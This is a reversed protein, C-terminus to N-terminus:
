RYDRRPTILRFVTAPAGPATGEKKVTEMAFMQPFRLVLQKLVDLKTGRYGHHSQLRSLQIEGGAAKLVGAFSDADKQWREARSGAILRIYEMGCWRVIEIGRAAHEQTLEDSAEVLAILGAIRIANENWRTLDGAVDAFAGRGLDVVENGFVRFAKKADKTATIPFVRGGETAKRRHSLFTDVQAAWKQRLAEPFEPADEPTYEPKAHTEFCLCRALFGREQAERNSTLERLIEGQVLWSLSLCPRELQISDRTIRDQAHADGSWGKLWLDIDAGSDRYLGCAVRIEGGADASSSMLTENNNQLARALAETTADGMWLRPQHMLEAELRKIETEHETREAIEEATPAGKKTGKSAKTVREKYIGLEAKRTADGERWEDTLRKGADTLPRMLEGVTGSKGCGREAGQVVYINLRSSGRHDAGFVEVATGIAGSLVALATLSPLCPPVRYVGALSEAVERVVDPFAEIPFPKDEIGEALSEVAGFRARNAEQKLEDRRREKLRGKWDFGAAKAMNALKGPSDIKNLGNRFKEAIEGPNDEPFHKKLLALATTEDLSPIILTARVIIIWDDYTPKGCSAIAALMADADELRIEPADEQHQENRPATAPPNLAYQRPAQAPLVPNEQPTPVPLPTADQHWIHAMDHSVYCLRNIDKGSKDAILGHRDQFHNKAAEWADRHREPGTGVPVVVKLGTGSPSVFALMVHPDDKLADRSAAADPLDDFDLVVLGSYRSLTNAKRGTFTGGFTVAPLQNKLARQESKTASRLTQVKKAVDSNSLWEEFRSVEIELSPVLATHKEFVSIPM